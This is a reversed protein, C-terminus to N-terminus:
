FFLLTSVFTSLTLSAPAQTSDEHPLQFMKQPFQFFRPFGAYLSMLLVDCFHYLDSLALWAIFHLVGDIQVRNGIYVPIAPPRSVGDGNMKNTTFGQGEM